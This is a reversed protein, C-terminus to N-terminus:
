GDAPALARRLYYRVTAAVTRDNAAADAKVAALLEDDFRIVVQETLVRYPKSAM